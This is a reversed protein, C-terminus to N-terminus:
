GFIGTWYAHLGKHQVLERHSGMEVIRGADMVVILDAYAPPLPRRSILITTRHRADARLNKVLAQESEADLLSLVDDLILIRPETLFARALCVSLSQGTSLRMGAPGILTDYGDPLAQIFEHAGARNAADVVRERTAGPDALAINYSVTGALLASEGGVVGVQSRLSRVDVSALDIGDIRLKGERPLVFRQLLRALTSKGAGSRGLLAVMQGPQVELSIRSVVDPSEPHYRFSVNELQILGRVPPMTEARQDQEAPAEHVNALKALAFLLGSMQLWVWIWRLIPLAALGMLIQFAILQGITLESALVLVAGRWLVVSNVILIGGAVLGMVVLGPGPGGGVTETLKRCAEPEAAVGKITAVCQVAEVLASHTATKRLWMQQDRAHSWRIFFVMCGMLAALSLFVILGLSASFYFMMGVASALLFVDFWATFALGFAQRSELCGELCALFAGIPRSQSYTLPLKLLRGFWATILDRSSRQALRELLTHRLYGVAAMLLGIILLGGILGLLDERKKDLLVRDVLRQAVLPLALPLPAMVLSVLMLAALLSRYPALVPSGIRLGTRPLERSLLRDTPDLLLLKGTWGAEFERRNMTVLGVAPDGVIVRDKGIDYLALYHHGKWHAVAPLRLGPLHTFDTTVARWQFGVAEAAHALSLMSAGTPGVHALDRLREVSLRRGHYRGIMALVAAGCDTEDEQPIFPYRTALPLWARWGRRKPLPRPVAPGDGIKVWEPEVAPHKVKPGQWPKVDLRGALAAEREYQELRHTLQELLQPATNLLGEFAQRSLSFCEVATIAIVSAYRPERLILAREGFYDGEALTALVSEGRVARAEGAKVIYMRDGAEGERVITEGTQFRCEQLQDLLAIVQRAPLAGFFTALRLFNSVARQRMLRELYPALHAQERLLENFEERGIRFLVADEAARASASRAENRVLSQEGFLDGGGLTGLVMSKGTPGQKFVRVKGAAILYACDGAEGERLITEGMAFSVLEVRGALRGIADNGLLSFV